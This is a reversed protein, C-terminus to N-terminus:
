FRVILLTQPTLLICRLHHLCMIHRAVMSALQGGNGKAM